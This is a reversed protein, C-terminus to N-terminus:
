IQRKKIKKLFDKAQSTTLWPFWNFIDNVSLPKVKSKTPM